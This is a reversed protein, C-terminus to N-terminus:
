EGRRHDRHEKVMDLPWALADSRIALIHITLSASRLGYVKTTIASRIAIRPPIEITVIGVSMNGYML